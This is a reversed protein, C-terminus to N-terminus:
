SGTDPVPRSLRDKDWLIESTGARRNLTRALVFLLDSLRNIFVLTCPNVEEVGQLAVLGREARRCVARAQHCLAANQSGGPLIFERLSPLEANLKDIVQELGHSYEADLISQGPLSLEGGTDFLAHQIDILLAAIDRPLKNALLVGIICNLEDIDGLTQIRQSSKEVREGSGLGTSGRDGTRTYIRTLRDSM